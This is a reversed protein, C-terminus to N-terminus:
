SGPKGFNRWADAHKRSREGFMSSVRRWLNEDKDTYTVVAEILGTAVATALQEEGSAMGDEILKFIRQNVSPGASDFEEVVCQGLDGFLITSPPEDPAWYDLTERYKSQFRPSQEVFAAVFAKCSSEM